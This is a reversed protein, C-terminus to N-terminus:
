SVEQHPTRRAPSCAPCFDQGKSYTWGKARAASRLERVTHGYIDANDTSAVCVFDRDDAAYNDCLLKVSRTVTM